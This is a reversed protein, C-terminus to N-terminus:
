VEEKRRFRRFSRNPRAFIFPMNGGSGSQAISEVYQALLYIFGGAEANLVPDGTRSLLGTGSLLFALTAIRETRTTGTVQSVFEYADPGYSLLSPLLKIPEILRNTLVGFGYGLLQSGRNIVFNPQSAFDLISFTAILSDRGVMLLLIRFYIDPAM